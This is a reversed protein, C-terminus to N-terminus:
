SRLTKLMKLYTEEDIEGSVYRKKLTEEAESSRIHPIGAHNPRFILWVVAIVAVLLILGM